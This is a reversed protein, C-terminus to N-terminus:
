GADAPPNESRGLKVGRQEAVELAAETQISVLERGNDVIAM